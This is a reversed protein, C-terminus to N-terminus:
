SGIYCVIVSIDSTEKEKQQSACAPREQPIASEAEEESDILNYPGGPRVVM